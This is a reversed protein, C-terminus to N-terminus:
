EATVVQHCACDPENCEGHGHKGLMPAFEDVFRKRGEVLGLATLRYSEQGDAAVLPEVYGDAALERLWGAIVSEEEQLFSVLAPPTVELALGEGRLWYLVQLLEDRWRIAELSEQGPRHLASM